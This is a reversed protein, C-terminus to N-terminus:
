SVASLLLILRTVAVSASELNEQAKQRNNMHIKNVDETEMAHVEIKRFSSTSQKAKFLEETKSHVDSLDKPAACKVLVAQEVPQDALGGIFQDILYIQLEEAKWKCSRGATRIGAEFDELTEGSSQRIGRFALRGSFVNESPEYIDGLTAAIEDYTLQEPQKDSPVKDFLRKFARSEMFASIACQKEDPTTRKECRLFNELRCLWSSLTRSASRLKPFKLKRLEHNTKKQSSSTDCLVRPNTELERRWNNVYSTAEYRLSFAGSRAPSTARACSAM